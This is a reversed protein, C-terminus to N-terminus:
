HGGGPPADERAKWRDVCDLVDQFGPELRLADYRPDYRLFRVDWAFGQECAELLLALAAETEGVGIHLIAKQSRDQSGPYDRIRTANGLWYRWWERLSAVTVVDGGPLSLYRNAEDLAEAARGLRILSHILLHRPTVSRSPYLQLTARIQAATEEYRRDMFLTWALTWRGWWAFPDLEQLRRSLEIAEEKRGEAVLLLCLLQMAEGDEPDEELARELHHRPGEISLTRYLLVEALVRHATGQHDDLEIARTAAAEAEDVELLRQRAQALGSFAPAFDPESELIAEFVEVAQDWDASSQRGLLRLGVQYDEALPPPLRALEGEVAAAGAPEEDGSRVAFLFGVLTILLIAVGAGLWRWWPRRPEEGLPAVFRYGHRPVTEIFRPSSPDDGLVSRIQRINFNIGREFDVHVDDGWLAQRIEDRSVLDGARSVLVELLRAPQPALELKLEGRSLQLPRITLEFDGFRYRRPGDRQPLGAPELREGAREEGPQHM